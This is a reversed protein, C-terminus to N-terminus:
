FWSHSTHIQIYRGFIWATLAMTGSSSNVGRDNALASDVLLFAKRLSDEVEELFINDVESTGLFNVDEFFFKIMNKRIYTAAEPGGHGDFM